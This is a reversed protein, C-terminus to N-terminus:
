GHGNKRGLYEDVYDMRAQIEADTLQRRAAVPIPANGNLRARQAAELQLQNTIRPENRRWTAKWDTKALKATRQEDLFRELSRHGVPLGRAQCWADIEQQPADVPPPREGRPKPTARLTANANCAVSKEGRELEGREEKEQIEKKYSESILSLDSSSSLSLDPTAHLTAHLTASRQLQLARRRRSRVTSPNERESQVNNDSALADIVHTLLDDLNRGGRLAERMAYLLVAVERPSMTDLWGWAAGHPPHHYFLRYQRCGPLAYAASKTGDLRFAFDELKPPSVGAAMSTPPVMSQCDSAVGGFGSDQHDGYEYGSGVHCAFDLMIKTSRNAQRSGAISACHSSGTRPIRWFSRTGVRARARSVGIGSAGRTSSTKRM